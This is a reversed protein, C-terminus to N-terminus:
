FFRTHRNHMFPIEVKALGEDDIGSRLVYAIAVAQAFLLFLFDVGIDRPVPM